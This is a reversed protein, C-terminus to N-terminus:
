IHLGYGATNPLTAGQGIVATLLARGSSRVQKDSLTTRVATGVPTRYKGDCPLVDAKKRGSMEAIAAEKRGIQKPVPFEM